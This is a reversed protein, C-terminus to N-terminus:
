LDRGASPQPVRHKSRVGYLTQPYGGHQTWFFVASHGRTGRRAFKRTQLVKRPHSLFRLHVRECRCAFVACTTKEPEPRPDLTLGDRSARPTQLLCVSTQSPNKRIQNGQATLHDFAIQHHRSHRNSKRHCGFEVEVNLMSLSSAFCSICAVNKQM